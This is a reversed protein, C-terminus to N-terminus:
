VSSILKSLDGGRAPPTQLPCYFGGPRWRSAVCFMWKECCSYIATMNGWSSPTATPSGGLTRTLSGHHPFCCYGGRLGSNTSLVARIRSHNAVYEFRKPHKLTHYIRVHYGNPDFAALRPSREKKYESLPAHVLTLKSHALTELLLQGYYVDDYVVAHRPHYRSNPRLVNGSFPHRLVAQKRTTLAYREDADLSPSAVVARVRSAVM